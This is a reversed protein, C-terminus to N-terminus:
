IELTERNFFVFNYQELEFVIQSLNPYLMDLYILDNKGVLKFIFLYHALEVLDTNLQTPRRSIFGISLNMHRHFDNLYSVTEPLPQKNRCYRNAEDIILLKPKYHKLIHEIAMDLESIGMFTRDQMVYRNFGNYENLVDIVWGADGFQRLIYKALYTKGSGQLGFICFRKNELSIM